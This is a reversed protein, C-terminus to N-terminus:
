GERSRCGTTWRALLGCALIAARHPTRKRAASGAPVDVGRQGDGSREEVDLGVSLQRVDTTGTAELAPEHGAVRQAVPQGVVLQHDARQARGPAVDVEEEVRDPEAQGDGLRGEDQPAQTRVDDERGAAVEGQGEDEGRAHEADRREDPLAVDHRAARGPRDPPERGPDGDRERRREVGEVGPCEHGARRDAREGADVAGRCAGGEPDGVVLAEQEREAARLGDRAEAGGDGPRQRLQEGPPVHEVDGPGVAQGPRHLGALCKGGLQTVAVQGLREEGVAHGIGEHRGVEDEATCARRGAGLHGRDPDCGDEDRIRVGARVLTRVGREEGLLLRGDEDVVGVEGRIAEGGQPHLKAIVRSAGLHRGRSPREPLRVGCAKEGGLEDAHCTGACHGGEPGIRERAEVRERRLPPDLEGEIRGEGRQRGEADAARGIPERGRARTVLQKGHEVGRTGRVDRDEHEAVAAVEHDGIGANPAEDDPIAGAPEHDVAHRHSTVRPDRHGGEHATGDGGFEGSDREPDANGAREAARHPRVGASM